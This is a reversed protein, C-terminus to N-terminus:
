KPLYYIYISIQEHAAILVGKRWWCVFIDLISYFQCLNVTINWYTKDNISHLSRIWVRQCTVGGSNGTEWCWGTLGYVRFFAGTYITMGLWSLPLKNINKRRSIDTWTNVTQKSAEVSSATYECCIREM